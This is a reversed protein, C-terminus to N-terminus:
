DKIKPCKDHNVESIGLSNVNLCLATAEEYYLTNIEM